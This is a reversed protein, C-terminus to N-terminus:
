ILTSIIREKSMTYIRKNLDKKLLLYQEYEELNLLGIIIGKLEIKFKNDQNFIRNITDKKKITSLQDFNLKRELLYNNFFSCILDHQLKLIPRLIDNQFVEEKSQITNKTVTTIAPRITVKNM